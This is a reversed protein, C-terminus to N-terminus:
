VGRAPPDTGYIWHGHCGRRISTHAASPPRPMAENHPTSKLKGGILIWDLTHSKAVWRIDPFRPSQTKLPTLEKNNILSPNIGESSGSYWPFLAWTAPITAMTWPQPAQQRADWGGGRDQSAERNSIWKTQRISKRPKFHSRRKTQKM